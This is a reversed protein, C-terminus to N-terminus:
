NRSDKTLHWYFQHSSVFSTRSGLLPTNQGVRSLLIPHPFFLYNFTCTLERLWCRLQTSSSLNLNRRFECVWTQCVLPLYISLTQNKKKKLIFLGIFMNILQSTRAYLGGRKVEPYLMLLPWASYHLAIDGACHSNSCDSWVLLCFLKAASQVVATHSSMPFLCLSRWLM